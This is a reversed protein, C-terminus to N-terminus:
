ASQKVLDVFSKYSQIVEEKKKNELYFEIAKKGLRPIENKVAWSSVTGEPVELVKALEKQTIGLKKCYQKVVNDKSIGRKKTRNKGRTTVETKNVAKLITKQKNEQETLWDQVEQATISWNKGFYKVIEDLFKKANEQAVSFNQTVQYLISFSLQLSAPSLLGWDFTKSKAFIEYRVPLELDAYTVHKAGLLTKHGKFTHNHLTLGV